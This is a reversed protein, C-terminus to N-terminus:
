SEFGPDKNTPLIQLWSTVKGLSRVETEQRLLLRMLLMCGTLKFM